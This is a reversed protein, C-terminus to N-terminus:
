LTRVPESGDWNVASDRVFDYFRRLGTDPVYIEIM